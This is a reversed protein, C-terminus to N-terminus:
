ICAIHVDAELFRSHRAATTTFSVSEQGHTGDTGKPGIADRSWNSGVFALEEKM